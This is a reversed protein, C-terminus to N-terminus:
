TGHAFVNVMYPAHQSAVMRVFFVWVVAAMGLGTRGFLATYEGVLYTAALTALPFVDHHKNIWM